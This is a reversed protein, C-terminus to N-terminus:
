APKLSALYCLSAKIRKTAGHSAEKLYNSEKMNHVTSNEKKKKRTVQPAECHGALEWWKKKVM